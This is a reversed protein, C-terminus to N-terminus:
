LEIQVDSVQDVPNSKIKLKEIEVKITELVVSPSWHTSTISEVGDRHIWVRIDKDISLDPIGKNYTGKKKHQYSKMSGDVHLTSDGIGAADIMEQVKDYIEQLSVVKQEM